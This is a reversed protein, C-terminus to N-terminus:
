SIASPHGHGSRSRHLAARYRRAAGLRRRYLMSRPSRGRARRAPAGRGQRRRRPARTGQHRRGRAPHAKWNALAAPEQKSRSRRAALTAPPPDPRAPLAAQGAQAFVRAAGDTKYVWPRAGRTRSPTLPSRESSRPWRIPFACRSAYYKRLASTSRRCRSGRWGAVAGTERLGATVGDNGTANPSSRWRRAGNRLPRMVPPNAAPAESIRGGAAATPVQRGRKTSRPPTPSGQPSRVWCWIM